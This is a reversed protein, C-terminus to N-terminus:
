VGHGPGALEIPLAHLLEKALFLRDMLSFFTGQEHLSLGLHLFGRSRITGEFAGVVDGHFFRVVCFMCSKLNLLDIESTEVVALYEPLVHYLKQLLVVVLVM